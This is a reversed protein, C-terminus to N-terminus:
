SNKWYGHDKKFYRDDNAHLMTNLFMGATRFYGLKKFRTNDTIIHTNLVEYRDGQVKKSLFYDEAYHVKEDFGGLEDFKQKDFLMFAGVAFPGTYKSWRMAFNSLSYLLNDTFGGDQCLIQATVCHLNKEKMLHIADRVMYPSELKLDADLFLIFRSKALKAGANRGVSPMGGPIVTVNPFSEAIEKTRDTSHADAVYIPTCWMIAYDQTQISKLLGGIKDEENKAPIVITLENNLSM